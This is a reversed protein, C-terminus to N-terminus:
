RLKMVKKIVNVDKSEVRILYIGNSMDRGTEDKGDWEACFGLGSDSFGLTRLLQGKLNYIGVHNIQGQRANYSITTSNIFPNPFIDINYEFLYNEDVSYITKFYLILGPNGIWPYSGQYFDIYDWLSDWDTDITFRIRYQTKNRNNDYDNQVCSTIDLYRHGEECSDSIIGINSCLTGSDSIDGATWDGPDIYDGYDIHDMICYMTNEGLVDWIPFQGYISNGFSNVQYLRIYASDLTYGQPINPLEFSIFSRETSNPDSPPPTVLAEGTDGAILTYDNFSISQNAQSLILTGTLSGIAYVSDILTDATLQITGALLLSILLMIIRKRMRVGM